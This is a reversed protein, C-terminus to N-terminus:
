KPLLKEETKLALLIEQMMWDTRTFLSLRAICSKIVSFIRSISSRDLNKPLVYSFKTDDDRLIPSNSMELKAGFDGIGSNELLSANVPPVHCNQYGSSKLKNSNIEVCIVDFGCSPLLNNEKNSLAEIFKEGVSPVTNDISSMEVPRLEIEPLTPSLLLEMAVRYCEEDAANDLNLLRMYGGNELEEQGSIEFDGTGVDSVGKRNAKTTGILDVPTPCAEELVHPTGCKETEVEDKKELEDNGIKHQAVLKEEFSKKRKKSVKDHKAPSNQLSAHQLRGYKIPKNTQRNLIGHLFSLKEEMQLHLKKDEFHLHEISAVADHIKRRKKRHEVVDEIDNTSTPSRVSNESVVAPNEGCTMTTVEGSLNSFASQVKEEVMKASTTVSFAGKEQSGVLQGNSFSGKKSNLASSTLVTRTSGGLLSELKSDIGTIPEICNGSSVPFMPIAHQLIHSCPDSTHANTYCPMLSGNQSQLYAQMHGQGCFVETNLRQLNIVIDTPLATFYMFADSSAFVVCISTCSISFFLFNLM